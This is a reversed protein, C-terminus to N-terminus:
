KLGFSKDHPHIGKSHLMLGVMVDEFIHEERVKMLDDFYYVDRICELSKRSLIYGHGGLCYPKFPGPYKKGRWTSSPSLADPYRFHWMGKCDKGSVRMGMYDCLKNPIKPKKDKTDMDRKLIHTFSDLEKIDLIANYAAIMKEPLHDYYDGCRLYLINDQLLYPNELSEDGIIAIENEDKKFSKWRDLDKKCCVRITLVQNM